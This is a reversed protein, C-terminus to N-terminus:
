DIPACTNAPATAPAIWSAARRPVSREGTNLRSITARILPYRQTRRDVSVEVVPMDMIRVAHIPAIHIAHMDSTAGTAPIRGFNHPDGGIPMLFDTDVRGLM